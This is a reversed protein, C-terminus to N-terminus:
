QVARRTARVTKGTIKCARLRSIVVQGSALLENIRGSVSSKEIGTMASLESLSYDRGHKMAELIAAQSSTVHGTARHEAYAQISTERVATTM